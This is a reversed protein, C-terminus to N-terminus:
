WPSTSKALVEAFGNGNIIMNSAVAVTVPKKKKNQAGSEMPASSIKLGEGANLIFVVRPDLPFMYKCTSDCIMANVAQAFEVKVVKGDVQSLHSGYVSIERKLSIESPISIMMAPIGADTTAIIVSGILKGSNDSVSSLLNCIRRRIKVIQQCKAYWEGSGFSKSEVEGDKFISTDLAPTAVSEQALAESSFVAVAVLVACAFVFRRGMGRQLVPIPILVTPM